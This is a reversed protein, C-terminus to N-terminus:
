EEEATELMESLGELESWADHEEEFEKIFEMEEETLEFSPTFRFDFCFLKGADTEEFSAGCAAENITGLLTILLNEMKEMKQETVTKEKKSM